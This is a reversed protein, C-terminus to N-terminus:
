EALEKGQTAIERAATLTPEDMADDKFEEVRCFHLGQTGDEVICCLELTLSLPIIEFLACSRVMITQYKTDRLYPRRLFAAAM